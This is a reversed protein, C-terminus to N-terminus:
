EFGNSAYIANGLSIYISLSPTTFFISKLFDAQGAAAALPQSQPREGVNRHNYASYQPILSSAHVRRQNLRRTPVNSPPQITPAVLVAPSCCRGQEDVRLGM